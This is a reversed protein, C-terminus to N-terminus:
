FLPFAKILTPKDWPRRYITCGLINWRLINFISFPWHTHARLIYPGFSSLAVPSYFHFKLILVKALNVLVILHLPFVVSANFQCCFLMILRNKSPFSSPLSSFVFISAAHLRNHTFLIEIKDDWTLLCTSFCLYPNVGYIKLHCMGNYLFCVMWDCCVCVFVCM